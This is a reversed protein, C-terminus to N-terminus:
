ETFPGCAIMLDPLYVIDDQDVKLRVAAHSGLARCPTGRLQGHFHSLLNATIMEHRIPPSCKPFIRGALYEYHGPHDEAFQLYEELTFYRRDGDSYPRAAEAVWWGDDPSNLIWEALEERERRSLQRIAQQLAQIDTQLTTVAAGVDTNLSATYEGRQT